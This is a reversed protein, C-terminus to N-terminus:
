NRFRTKVLVGGVGRVPESAVGAGSNPEDIDQPPDITSAAPVQQTQCLATGSRRGCLNTMPAGGGVKGNIGM